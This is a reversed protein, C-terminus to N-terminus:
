CVYTGNMGWGSIICRDGARDGTRSDLPVITSTDLVREALRLIAIDNPYLNGNYDEGPIWDHHQQVLYLVCKLTMIIIFCFTQNTM